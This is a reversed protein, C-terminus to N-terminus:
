RLVSLSGDEPKAFLGRRVMREHLLKIGRRGKVQSLLQLELDERVFGPKLRYIGILRKEIKHLGM